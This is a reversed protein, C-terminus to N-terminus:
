RKLNFPKGEAVVKAPFKNAWKKLFPMDENEKRLEDPLMEPIEDRIPYWRLCKPCVIVGEVIEDKEEFVHLELPHYKDIPCALIDMLKVKM